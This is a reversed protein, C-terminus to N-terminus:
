VRPWANHYHHLTFECRGFDQYFQPNLVGKTHKHFLTCLAEEPSSAGKHARIWLQPGTSSRDDYSPEDSEAYLPPPRRDIRWNFLVAGHPDLFVGTEGVCLIYQRAVEICFDMWVSSAVPLIDGALNGSTFVKSRLDSDDLQLGFFSTVLAVALPESPAQMTELPSTNIPEWCLAQRRLEHWHYSSAAAEELEKRWVEGLGLRDLHRRLAACESKGHALFYIKNEERKRTERGEIKNFLEFIAEADPRVYQDDALVGFSVLDQLIMQLRSLELYTGKLSIYISAPYQLDTTIATCSRCPM